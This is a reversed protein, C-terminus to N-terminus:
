AQASSAGGHGDRSVAKAHSGNLYRSCVSGIEDLLTKLDHHKILFEKAELSLARTRDRPDSQTTFMVAPISHFGHHARLYEWVQFDGKRPMNLNFLIMHPRPSGAFSGSRELFEIAEVGDNVRCVHIAINAQKLAMQIIYFDGDTDEV